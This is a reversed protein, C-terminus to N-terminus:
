TNYKFSHKLVDARLHSSCCKPFLMGCHGFRDEPQSSSLFTGPCLMVLVPSWNVFMGFYSKSNKSLQDLQSKLCTEEALLYM